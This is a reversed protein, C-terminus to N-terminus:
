KIGKMGLARGRNYFVVDRFVLSSLLFRLRPEDFILYHTNEPYDQGGHVARSFWETDKCTDTELWARAQMRINPVEAIFLGGPKLVRYIESLVRMIKAPRIHELCDIVLVEDAADKPFPLKDSIDCVVDVGPRPRIDCNTYGEIINDGCGLHILLKEKM